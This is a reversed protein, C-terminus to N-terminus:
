TKARAADVVERFFRIEHDPFASAHIALCDHRDWILTYDLKELRNRLTTSGDRSLHVHEFLLISPTRSELDLSGIVVDDHGETDVVLVDPMACDTEALLSDLRRTVVTREVIREALGPRTGARRLITDKSFSSLVDFEGDVEFFTATGDSEAVAVEAFALGDIDAYTQRLAAHARPLPEVLLGQWRGELIFRNIPDARCGDNAGVQVFRVTGRKRM